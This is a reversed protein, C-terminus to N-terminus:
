LSTTALRCGRKEHMVAPLSPLDADVCQVEGTAADSTVGTASIAEQLNQRLNALANACAGGYIHLLLHSLVRYRQTTDGLAEFQARFAAGRFHEIAYAADGDDFFVIDAIPHQTRWRALVDAGISERRPHYLFLTCANEDATRSQKPDHTRIFEAGIQIRNWLLPCTYNLVDTYRLMRRYTASTNNHEACGQQKSSSYMKQFHKRGCTNADHIRYLYLEPCHMSHLINRDRLQWVVVSDEGIETGRHMIRTCDPYPHRRLVDTRILLSGEYTYRLAEFMFRHDQVYCMWSDLVCAPKKSRVLEIMQCMIRDPSYADDDDWQACYEGRAAAIALNRLLGVSAGQKNNPVLRIRDDCRSALTLMNMTPTDWSDYVAVLERDGWTQRRFSEIAVMAYPVRRATLMLCSVKARPLTLHAGIDADTDKTHDHSPSTDM